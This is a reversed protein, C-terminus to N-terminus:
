ADAFPPGGRAITGDTRWEFLTGQLSASGLVALLNKGLFNARFTRHTFLRHYGVTVGALIGQFNALVLESMTWIAGPAAMADAALALVSWMALQLGIPLM